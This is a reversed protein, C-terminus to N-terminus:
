LDLKKLLEVYTPEVRNEEWYKVMRDVIKEIEEDFVSGESIMQELRQQIPFDLDDFKANTIDEFWDWCEISIDEYTLKMRM